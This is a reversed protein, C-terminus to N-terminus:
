NTRTKNKIKKFPMVGVIMRLVVNLTLTGFWKNMDVLVRSDKVWLDHIDKIAAKVESEGVHSLTQLRDKSLLELTSLKRVIRCYPGYSYFGFMTNDHAWSNSLWPKRVTPSSLTTQTSSYFHSSNIDIQM